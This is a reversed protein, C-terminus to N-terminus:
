VTLDKRMITKESTKCLMGKGPMGASGGRCSVYIEVRCMFGLCRIIRKRAPGHPGKAHDNKGPAKCFVEKRPM